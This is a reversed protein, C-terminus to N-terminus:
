PQDLRLGGLLKSLHKRGEEVTGRTSNFHINYLMDGRRVTLIEGVFHTGDADVGYSVQVAGDVLPKKVPQFSAGKSKVADVIGDQLQAAGFAATAHTATLSVANSLKEGTEKDALLPTSLNANCGRRSFDQIAFDKWNTDPYTIEFRCVHNRYRLHEGVTQREVGGAKEAARIVPASEERAVGDLRLRRDIGLIGASSIEPCESRRSAKLEKSVAQPSIPAPSSKMTGLWTLLRTTVDMPELGGEAMGSLGTIRQGMAVTVFSWSRHIRVGEEKRDELPLSWTLAGAPLASGKAPTVAIDRPEANVGLQKALYAGEWAEHARLLDMGSKGAAAAGIQAPTADVVQVILDDVIFAQQEGQEHTSVSTGFLDVTYHVDGNNVVLRYGCDTVITALSDGDVTNSAPPAAPKPAAQAPSAAPSAPPAAACGGALLVISAWTVARIDSM